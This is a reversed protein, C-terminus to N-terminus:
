KGVKAELVRIKEELEHIRRVEASWAPAPIDVGTEQIIRARDALLVKALEHYDVLVNLLGSVPKAGFFSECGAFARRLEEIKEQPLEKHVTYVATIGGKRGLFFERDIHTIKGVRQASLLASAAYSRLVYPRVHLEQARLTERIEQSIGQRGLHLSGRMEEPRGKRDFGYDPRVIPSRAGLEEQHAARHELYTKLYECGEAVLFTDYKHGVKSLEKRVHVQIPPGRRFHVRGGKVVIDPLDRLELGDTARDTGLVEPRVGAFAVFSVLVKGRTTAATLVERLEDPTPVHENEVTATCSSDGIAIRHIVLDNHDLWSRVAKVFNKGYGPANGKKRMAIIFDQLQNEM